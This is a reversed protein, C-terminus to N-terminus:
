LGVHCGVLEKTAKALESYETTSAIFGIPNINSFARTSHFIMETSQLYSHTPILERM